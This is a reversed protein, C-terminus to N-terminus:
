RRGRVPAADPHRRSEAAGPRRLAVAQMAHHPPQPAVEGGSRDVLGMAALEGLEADLEAGYRQALEALNLAGHAMLDVYISEARASIGLARLQQM